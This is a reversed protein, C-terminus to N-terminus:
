LKRAPKVTTSHLLVMKWEGNIRDFVATEIWEFHFPKGEVTADASNHHSRWAVPGDISMRVNNFTYAISAKGELPKLFNIHDEVTWITDDEFLLYDPSCAKRMAQYDFKAIGDFYSQFVKDVKMLEATPDEGPQCSALVLLSSLILGSILRNSVQRM